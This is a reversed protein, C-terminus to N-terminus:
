IQIGKDEGTRITAIRFYFIYVRDFKEQKMNIIKKVTFKNDVNKNLLSCQAPPAAKIPEKKVPPRKVKLDYDLEDQLDVLDYKLIYDLKCNNGYLM